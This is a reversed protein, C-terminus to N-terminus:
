NSDDKAPDAPSPHRARRSSTPVADATGSLSGARAATMDISYGEDSDEFSDFLNVWRPIFTTIGQFMFFPVKVFDDTLKATDKAERAPVICPTKVYPTCCTWLKLKKTAIYLRDALDRIKKDTDYTQSFLIIKVRKHRQKRFYKQLPKPFDKFDRNDWHLNAEGVFVVSNVPLKYKWLQSADIQTVFSQMSDNLDCFVNWGKSYYKFALKNLTTSKGCGKKGFIVDLTYPSNFKATIRKYFFALELLSLFFVVFCFIITGM